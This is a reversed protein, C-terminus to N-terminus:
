DTIVFQVDELPNHEVLLNVTQTGTRYRSRASFLVPYSGPALDAPLTVEARWRGPGSPSLPVTAGWPFSATVQEVNPSTEALAAVVAGPRAPNPALSASLRVPAVIRYSLTLRRRADGFDAELTLSHDGETASAPVTWLLWWTNAEAGGPATPTLPLASGGPWRAVVSWAGGSTAAGIAITDGPAAVEPSLRGTLRRHRLVIPKKVADYRNGQRDKIWGWYYYTGPPLLHGRDDRGDWAFAPPPSGGGGPNFTRFAEGSYTGVYAEWATVNRNRLTLTRFSTEDGVGDGDPSFPNPAANLVFLASRYLITAAESRKIEQAPRLTGDPYGVVIRLKAALAVERRLSASIAAQDRFRSLIALAEEDSLAAAFESLGLSRVLIAVAADRRLADHPYFRGDGSGRIIGAQRAAEIWPLAPIRDYLRLSPPVDAFHQPQNPAPHLRFAKATMLTFEARTIPTNPWFRYAMVWSGNSWLYTIWADTVEEERLLDIYPFAWHSRPVDCYPPDAAAAPPSAPWALFSSALALLMAATLAARAM